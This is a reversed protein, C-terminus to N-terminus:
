NGKSKKSKQKKKDQKKKWRKLVEKKNMWLDTGKMVAKMEEKTLFGDYISNFSNTLEKDSFEAHVRIEEAKGSIGGSWSHVMFQTYDDIEIKDCAMTIITSVSAVTGTLVATVEAKCRKIAGVIYFGSDIYGGGNNIYLRVKDKETMMDLFMVLKNYEIPAEIETTLFVVHKNGNSVMAVLNDSWIDPSIREDIKSGRRTGEVEYKDM